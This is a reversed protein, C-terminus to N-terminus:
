KLHGGFTGGLGIQRDYITLGTTFQRDSNVRPKLKNSFLHSGFGNIFRHKERLLAGTKNTVTM